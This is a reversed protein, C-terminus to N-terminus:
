PSQNALDDLLGQESDQAIQRDWKQHDLEVMWDYLNRLDEDSLAMVAQEIQELTNM